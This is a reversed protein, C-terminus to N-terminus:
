SLTIGWKDAMRQEQRDLESSSLRTSCPLIEGEYGDLYATNGDTDAGFALQEFGNTGPNGTWVETGDIRLASNAGDLIVTHIHWNTDVSVATNTFSGAYVQYEGSNNRLIVRDGQLGNNDMFRDDDGSSDTKAVIFITAPQSVASFTPSQHADDTGDYQVAPQSNTVNTQFTPGGVASMDLSAESDTWPDVTVGDNYALQTADWHAIASDPIASATLANHAGYATGNHQFKLAPHAANDDTIPVFGTAGGVQVRWAKEVNDTTAAVDYIPVDWTSGGADFRLTALQDSDPALDTRIWMEGESTSAPDTTRQELQYRESRFLGSEVIGRGM